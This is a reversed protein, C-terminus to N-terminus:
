RWAMRGWACSLLGVIGASLWLELTGLTAAMLALAAATTGATALHPWRARDRLTPILAILMVGQAALIAYDQWIM